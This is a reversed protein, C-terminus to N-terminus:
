VRKRAMQFHHNTSTFDLHEETKKPPPILM